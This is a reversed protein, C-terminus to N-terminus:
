EMHYVGVRKRTIAKKITELNATGTNKRPELRLKRSRALLVATKPLKSKKAAKISMEKLTMPKAEEGSNALEQAKQEREKQKQEETKEKEPAEVVIWSFRGKTMSLKLSNGPVRHELIKRGLRDWLFFLYGTTNQKAKPDYWRFLVEKKPSSIKLHTNALPEILTIDKAFRKFGELLKEQRKSNTKQIRVLVPQSRFGGEENEIQIKYIGPKSFKARVSNRATKLVAQKPRENSTSWFFVNYRGRLPRITQWRINIYVPFKPVHIQSKDQPSIIIIKEEELTLKSSEEIVQTLHQYLSADIKEDVHAGISAARKWADEVPFFIQEATLEQINQDMPQDMDMSLHSMEFERITEPGLSIVKPGYITLKPPIAFQPSVIGVVMWSGETVRILTNWYLKSKETLNKWETAWPYYANVEGSIQQVEISTSSFKNTKAHGSLASLLYLAFLFFKLQM